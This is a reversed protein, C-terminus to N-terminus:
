RRPARAPHRRTCGRLCPDGRRCQSATPVPLQEPLDKRLPLDGILLEEFSNAHADRATLFSPLDWLKKLTALTSTHDRVTSDLAPVLRPSVLIAPVRMGLRTFDFSPASDNQGPQPSSLGDPSPVGTPPVVHDYFGGHEDYTVVLLSRAFLESNARLANYITALLHEGYRVDLPAHESNAAVVGTGMFRPIIYSYNPLDGAAVDSVFREEFRRFRNRDKRLQTFRM